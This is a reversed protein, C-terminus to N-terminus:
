LKKNKLSIEYSKEPVRGPRALNFFTYSFVSYIHSVFLRPERPGTLYQKVFLCVVIFRPDRILLSHIFICVHPSGKRRSFVELLSASTTLM